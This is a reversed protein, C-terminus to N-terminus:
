QNKWQKHRKTKPKEAQQSNLEKKPEAIKVNDLLNEAKLFLVYIPMEQETPTPYELEVKPKQLPQPKTSSETTLEEVWSGEDVLWITSINKTETLGHITPVALPCQPDSIIISKTGLDNMTSASDFFELDLILDYEDLPTVEFSLEGKWASVQLEVKQAIGIAAVDDLRFQSGQVM